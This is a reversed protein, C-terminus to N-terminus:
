NIVLEWVLLWIYSSSFRKSYKNFEYKIYDHKYPHCQIHEKLYFNHASFSLTLIFSWIDWIVKYTELIIFYMAYSVEFKKKIGHMKVFQIPNYSVSNGISYFSELKNKATWNLTSKTSYLFLLTSISRTSFSINLSTSLKNLTPSM